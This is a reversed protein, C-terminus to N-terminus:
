KQFLMITGLDADASTKVDSSDSDILFLERTTFGLNKQNVVDIFMGIKGSLENDGSSLKDFSYLSRIPFTRGASTYRIDKFEYTGVSGDTLTLLEKGGEVKTQAVVDGGIYQLKWPASIFERDWTSTPTKHDKLFTKFTIQYPEGDNAPTIVAQFGGKPKRQHGKRPRRDEKIKTIQLESYDIDLANAFILQGNSNKAPLLKYYGNRWSPTAKYLKVRDTVRNIGNLINGIPNSGVLDRYEILLVLYEDTSGPLPTSILGVDKTKAGPQVSGKFRGELDVQYNAEIPNGRLPRNNAFSTSGALLGAQLIIGTKILFSLNM